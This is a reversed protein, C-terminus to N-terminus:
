YVVQNALNHRAALILHAVLTRKDEVTNQTENRQILSEKAIPGFFNLVIVKGEEHTQAEQVARKLHEPFGINYLRQYHEIMRLNQERGVTAIVFEAYTPVTPVPEQVQDQVQSYSLGMSKATSKIANLIGCQILQLLIEVKQPSVGCAGM